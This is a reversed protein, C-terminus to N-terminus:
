CFTNKKYPSVPVPKRRLIVFDDARMMMFRTFKHCLLREIEDSQKICISIRVSNVSGEVLVREKENRSIVVPNLLLEKSTKVEVEPKNHGEVVQSPFNEICLAANLTHRIAILYSKLADM